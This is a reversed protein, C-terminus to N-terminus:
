NVETEIARKVTWKRENIRKRLLKSPIGCLRSLEIMTYQKDKYGHLRLQQKPKALQALREPTKIHNDWRNHLRTGKPLTLADELSWKVLRERLTEISIGVDGAWETLCQNKGNFEIFRTAGRNICNQKRTAWRINSPEYNGNNDIRDIEAGKFYDNPLDGAFIFFDDWESCVTIGRGGYRHYMKDKPNKCREMMNRWKARILRHNDNTLRM